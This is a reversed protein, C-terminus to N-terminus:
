LSTPFKSNVKSGGRSCYQESAKQQSPASHHHDAEVACGLCAVIQIPEDRDTGVPIVVFCDRCRDSILEFHFFLDCRLSSDYNASRRERTRRGGGDWWGLGCLRGRSCHFRKSGRRLSG